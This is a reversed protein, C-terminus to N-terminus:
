ETEKKLKNFFICENDSDWKTKLWNNECQIQIIPGSPGKIECLARIIGNSDRIVHNKIPEDKHLIDMLKTCNWCQKNPKKIM